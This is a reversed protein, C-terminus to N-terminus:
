FLGYVYWVVGPLWRVVRIVGDGSVWIGVLYRRGLPSTRSMWRKVGEVHVASWQIKGRGRLAWDKMGTMGNGHDSLHNSENM